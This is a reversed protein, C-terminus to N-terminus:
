IARFIVSGWVSQLYTEGHQGNENPLETEDPLDTEDPLETEGHAGNAHLERLEKENSLTERAFHGFTLFHESSVQNALHDSARSDYGIGVPPFRTHM